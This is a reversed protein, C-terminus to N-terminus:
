WMWVMSDNKSSILLKMSHCSFFFFFIFMVMLMLSFIFYLLLFLWYIPSMQPM